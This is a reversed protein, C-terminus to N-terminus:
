RGRGARRKSARQVAQETHVEILTHLRHWAIVKARFHMSYKEGYDWEWLDLLAAHAAEWQAFAPSYSIGPDVAGLLPYDKIPEHHRLVQFPNLRM